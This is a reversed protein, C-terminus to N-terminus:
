LNKQQPRRVSLAKRMQVLCELSPKGATCAYAQMNGDSGPRAGPCDSIRCQWLSRIWFFVNMSLYPTGANDIKDEMWNVTGGISYKVDESREAGLGVVGSYYIGYGYAEAFDNGTFYVIM